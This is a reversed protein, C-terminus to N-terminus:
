RIPIARGTGGQEPKSPMPELLKVVESWIDRAIKWSNDAQKKLVMMYHGSINRIKGGRKPKDIRSWDGSLFAWEGCLQIEGPKLEFSSSVKSFFKIYHSKIKNQGIIALKGPPMWVANNELLKAIAQANGNNYAANFDVRVKEIAENDQDALSSGATTTDRLRQGEIRAVERMLIFGLRPKNEILNSLKTNDLEILDTEKLLIVDVFVPLDVLFETEGIIFQGSMTTILKGDSFIEAQGDLIIFIKDIVSGKKTLQEGAKIHRLTAVSELADREKDTLGAFIKVKALAGSLTLNETKAANTINCMMFTFVLAIFVIGLKNERRSFM